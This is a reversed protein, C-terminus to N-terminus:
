AVPHPIFQDRIVLVDDLRDEFLVPGAILFRAFAILHHGTEGASLRMAGNVGGDLNLTKQEAPIRLVEDGTQIEFVTGSNVFFSRTALVGSGGRKQYPQLHFYRFEGSSREFAAPVARGTPVLLSDDAAVFYGQASVGSKAFATPHPQPMEIAGASDNCWVVDGTMPDLAYIYIGEAPWIGAAVYLLGDSLVPGGRAPWRSIMRDNGLLMEANPGGQRKWLLSGDEAQYCYFHGDDSVVFVRDKFALPAFRVPADTFVSWKEEGADADLCYVKCDASSGFYLRGNSVVPHYAYDFPMRTDPAQWAPRPAHRASYAWRLQLDRPLEDETYGSRSADHRFMPWDAALCQISWTIILAMGILIRNM